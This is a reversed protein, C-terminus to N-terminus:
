KFVARVPALHRRVVVVEKKREIEYRVVGNNEVINDDYFVM